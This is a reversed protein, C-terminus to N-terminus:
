GNLTMVWVGYIIALLILAAFIWQVVKQGEKEQKEAYAKRKQNM